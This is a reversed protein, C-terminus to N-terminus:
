AVLVLDRGNDFEGLLYELQAHSIVDEPRWCGNPNPFYYNEGDFSDYADKEILIIGWTGDLVVVFEQDYDIGLGNDSVTVTLEEGVTAAEGMPSANTAISPGVEAAYKRMAIEKEGLMEVSLDMPDPGAPAMSNRPFESPPGVPGDAAVSMPLVAALLALVGLIAILKTKM